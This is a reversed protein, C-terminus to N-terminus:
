QNRSEVLGRALNTAPMAPYNGAREFSQKM